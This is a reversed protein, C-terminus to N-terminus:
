KYHGPGFEALTPTRNTVVVRVHFYVACYNRGNQAYVIMNFKAEGNVIGRMNSVGPTDHWWVSRADKAVSRRSKLPSDDHTEISGQTILGNDFEHRSWEFAQQGVQAKGGNNLNGEISPDTGDGIQGIGSKVSVKVTFPFGWRDGAEVAQNGEPTVSITIDGCKATVPDFQANQQDQENLAEAHASEHISEETVSEVVENETVEIWERPSDLSGGFPGGGTLNASSLEACPHQQSMGTPDVMKLPNNSVYAYRNWTQPRHANGSALLPDASTFRGQTSAYYRANFYDLGTEGDRQQGTFQDRVGDSGGYGLSTSRGSTTSGIEVGFPMYDHRSVVSGSSNTVVRPSGLHDTTTYRTGASPDIVAMMGGGSVYEKLLNGSSGSYEAALEGSIGYIFRTNEGMLKRVRRGVGDYKYGTTSNVSILHNEADYAYSTAGDSTLNGAADYSYGTVRNTTSSFALNYSGGGYDIQRNGYRDYHNNETWGTGSTTTEVTSKVRNLSDYSYTDTIALSGITNVHSKVNGNNDTTGYDYSLNLVSTPTGSTGLKIATAQLRTNYSLQHILSNGLTESQLSQQPKYSVSSLSAAAAYSTASSLLSALRAAADPTYAVSRRDSAGPVAPYTETALASNLYYTAETLYNVSDTQQVHRIVRGLEDFGSYDGNSSSSGYTVAVLRGSSYGRAFSAPAGSPLSANDYYYNVPPTVGGDNSYTKTIPRDLADYTFNTTWHSGSTTRPDTKQTLNSNSDYAYTATGSEPNAASTLRKLSDYVFTRTQSGQTVGLLNGLVDYSYSTAQTPSAVTGLSGTTSSDDPEDVRALRGLADVLSRRLKGAQDTVTVVPGLPTSTSGSYVSTVVASDPTTVSTVRGLYDYANTTWYGDPNIAAALTNDRYPNSVRWSRGMSDYQTDSIAYTSGENLFSRCARGLKDYYQYTEAVHTADIDTRTRVYLDGPTDGYAFNTAGGGTPRTITVPRNMSDYAYSTTQGNADTLSAMLGAHTDYTASTSLATTSGHVGTSDPAATSASTPYAYNYTSSYTVESKNGLADWANRVNGFQDYQAHTQLYSGTTNLWAGATTALGRINTSPDSWATITGTYTLLPYSSTEDYSTQTQAVVTGSSDKVRSSTPLSLLNRDRYATRTTSSIATDNVLYTAEETRLLSGASISGIASTQGSSQSISTFDYHNTAIVNLDNDYTMTSTSTLANSTGTDLLISIEKTVRPNRTATWWGGSTPGSTTWDTLLRRLMAGGASSPASIREEWSTGVLLNSFGFTPNTTSAESYVLRENLTGDPETTSVTLAGSTVAAGYHWHVEDTSNGTPSLWRDVVGRNAQAYPVKLYSAGIVAAYDFREYAGTPYVVKTIEGWVNYTFLYSQGNPLIIEAPVVPNFLTNSDFVRDAFTGSFLSPSHSAVGDGSGYYPVQGSQYRLADSTNTLANALNAWRVSYSFPTSTTSPLYYTYTSATPSAPLPVDLVRGQTDTWQRNTASYSITNGNRDIYKYGTSSPLLLYRSGDPLYLTGEGSSNADYRINSGDVAYYTGAFSPSSVTSDDIRLEHSAGGPM